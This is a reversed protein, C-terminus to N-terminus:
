RGVGVPVVYVPQAVLGDWGAAVALEDDYFGGIPLTKLGLATAGLLLNQALHGAELLAFRIGRQGYRPTIAGPAIGLLLLVPAEEAAVPRLGGERPETYPSASLLAATDVATRPALAHPGPLYRYSGPAIGAVRQVIVDLLVPRVAGASPHAHLDLRMPRGDEEVDVTATVGAALGLLTGLDAAALEGEFRGYASRRLGLAGALDPTTLRTPDAPPLRVQGGPLLDRGAAPDPRAAAKRPAQRDMSGRRFKSAQLFDTAATRGTAHMAEPGGAGALALSALWALFSEDAVPVGLRNALMHWQSTLAPWVGHHLDDGLSALERAYTGVAAAWRGPLGTGAGTGGQGRLRAVATRFQEPRLDHEREARTRAAAVDVRPAGPLAAWSLAYRRLVAAVTLEDHGADLLGAVHGALLGLAVGTRPAGALVGPLAAAALESSRQFLEEGLPLARPGGYREVEPEYAPRLVTGSTQWGLTAAGDPDATHAYFAGADLPAAGPLTGTAAALRDAVADAVGPEADRLRLRVHPGGEWYRLAFWGTALGDDVAQRGEAAAALYLHDAATRDGHAFVHLSQWAVTATVSPM